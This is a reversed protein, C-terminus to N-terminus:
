TTRLANFSLPTVFRILVPGLDVRQMFFTVPDSLYGADGSQGAHCDPSATSPTGQFILSVALALVEKGMAPIAPFIVYLHYGYRGAVM